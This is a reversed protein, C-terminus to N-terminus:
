ILFNNFLEISSVLMGNPFGDIFFGDIEILDTTTCILVAEILLAMSSQLIAVNGSGVLGLAM